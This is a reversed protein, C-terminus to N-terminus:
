DTEGPDGPTADRALESDHDPATPGAIPCTPILAFTSSVIRV